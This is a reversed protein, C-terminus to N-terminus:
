GGEGDSGCWDSMDSSLMNEDDMSCDPAHQAQVQHSGRAAAAGGKGALRSSAPEGPDAQVADVVNQFTLDSTSDAAGGCQKYVMAGDLYVGSANLVITSSGVKLTIKQSAELVISSANLSM